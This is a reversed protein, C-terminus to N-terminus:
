SSNQIVKMNGRPDSEIKLVGASELVTEGYVKTIDGINVKVYNWFEATKCLGQLFALLKKTDVTRSVAPKFEVIAVEGVVKSKNNNEAWAQVEETLEKIQSDLNATERKHADNKAKLSLKLTYLRDVKDRIEEDEDLRLTRDVSEDSLHDVSPLPTQDGIRLSREM